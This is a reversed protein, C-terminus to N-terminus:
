QVNITAHLKVEPQKEINTKLRLSGSLSETLEAQVAVTLTHDYFGKDDPEEDRTLKYTPLIPIISRWDQKASARPEFVVDTVTLDKKKTRLTITPNADANAGNVITAYTPKAEIIVEVKGKIMLTLHPENEADSEVTITKSFPGHIGKLKVQPTVTGERGPPITSDFDVV